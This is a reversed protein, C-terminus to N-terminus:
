TYRLNYVTKKRNTYQIFCNQFFNILFTLLHRFQRILFLRDSLFFIRVLGGFACMFPADNM